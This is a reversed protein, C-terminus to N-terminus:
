STRKKCREEVHCLSMVSSLFNQEGASGARVCVCVCMEVISTKEQLIVRKEMGQQRLISKM